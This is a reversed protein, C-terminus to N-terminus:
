NLQETRVNLMVKGTSLAPTAPVFANYAALYVVVTEDPALTVARPGDLSAFSSNGTLASTGFSNAGKVCAKREADDVPIAAGYSALLTKIVAGGVAMSNYISVVTTKATPNHVSLYVYPTPTPTSLSGLPCTGLLRPAVQTESLVAITSNVSGVSPPVELTTPAPDCSLGFNGPMCTASCTRQHYANADACGANTLSVSGPVCSNVPEGACVSTSIACFQSCTKVRTGCNGCPEAISTGHICGNVVENSCANYESWTGSVGSGLCVASQEGCAGCRRMKIEDIVTCTTGPVPSPPGADVASDKSAGDKAAGDKAGGERPKPTSADLDIPGAEPLRATPSPPLPGTPTEDLAGVFDSAGDASCGVAAALGCLGATMLAVLRSRNAAM